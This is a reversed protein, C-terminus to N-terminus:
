VNDLPTPQLGDPLKPLPGKKEVVHYRTTTEVVTEISPVEHGKKVIFQKPTRHKAQYEALSLKIRQECSEDSCECYFYLETNEDLTIAERGPRSTVQEVHKVGDIVNQNEHRFVVQNQRMRQKAPEDLM